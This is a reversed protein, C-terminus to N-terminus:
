YFYCRAYYILGRQPMPQRPSCHADQLGMGATYCVVESLTWNGSVVDESCFPESTITWVVEQGQLSGRDWM